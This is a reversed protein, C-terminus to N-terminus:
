VFTSVVLIGGPKLMDILDKLKDKPCSAGSHIRDYKMDLEETDPVFCNRVYFKLNSFDM